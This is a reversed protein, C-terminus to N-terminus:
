HDYPSLAKLFVQLGFSDSRFSVRCVHCLRRKPEPARIVDMHLLKNRPNSPELLSM